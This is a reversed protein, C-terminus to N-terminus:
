KEGVTRAWGAKKAIVEQFQREVDHELGRPQHRCRRGTHAHCLEVTEPGGTTSAFSGHGVRTGPPLELRKCIVHDPNIDMVLAPPTHGPPEM